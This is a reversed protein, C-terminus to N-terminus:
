PLRVTRLSKGPLALGPSVAQWRLLHWSTRTQDRHPSSGRSLFHCGVRTNKGPSHWPCLRRAPYLGHVRLSDSVVSHTLTCVGDTLATVRLAKSGLAEAAWLGLDPRLIGLSDTSPPMHSGPLGLATDWGRRGQSSAGSRPNERRFGCLTFLRTHSLSLTLEVLSLLFAFWGRPLPQPLPEHGLSM